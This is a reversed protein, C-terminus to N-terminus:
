KSWRMEVNMMQAQYNRWISFVYFASKLAMALRANADNVAEESPTDPFHEDGNVTISLAKREM